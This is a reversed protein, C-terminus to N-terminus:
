RRERLITASLPEGRIEVPHFDLDSNQGQGILRQVEPMLRNLRVTTVPFHPPKPNQVHGVVVLKQDIAAQLVNRREVSSSVWRVQEAALIEDRFKRLPVFSWGPRSEARALARVLDSITNAPVAGGEASASGQRPQAPPTTGSESTVSSVRPEQQNTGLEFWIEIRDSSEASWNGAAAHSPKKRRKANRLEVRIRHNEDPVAFHLQKLAEKLPVGQDLKQALQPEVQDIRAKV